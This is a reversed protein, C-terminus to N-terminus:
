TLEITTQTKLIETLAAELTEKSAILKSEDEKPILVKKEEMGESFIKNVAYVRANGVLDQILKKENGLDFEVIRVKKNLEKSLERVVAGKKGILSAISGKSLLIIIKEFDLSKIFSVNSFSFIKEKEKLIRCIKFDLESLEKKEIKEKCKKCLLNKKVDGECFPIKLNDM